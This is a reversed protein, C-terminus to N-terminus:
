SSEWSWGHQLSYGQQASSKCLRQLHISCRSRHQLNGTPWLTRHGGRFGGCLFCKGLQKFASTVSGIPQVLRHSRCSVCFRGALPYVNYRHEVRAIAQPHRSRAVSLSIESTGSSKEIHKARTSCEGIGTNAHHRPNTKSKYRARREAIRQYNTTIWLIAVGHLNRRSAEYDASQICKSASTRLLFKCTSRWDIQMTRYDFASQPTTRDM